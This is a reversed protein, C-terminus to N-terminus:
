YRIFLKGIFYAITCLGIIALVLIYAKQTKQSKMGCEEGNRFGASYIQRERGELKEILITETKIVIEDEM